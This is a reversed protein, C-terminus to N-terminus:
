FKPALHKWFLCDISYSKSISIGQCSFSSTQVQTKFFPPLLFSMQSQLTAKVVSFTLFNYNASYFRHNQFEAEMMKKWSKIKYSFFSNKKAINHNNVKNQCTRAIFLLFCDSNGLKAKSFQNYFFSNYWKNNMKFSLLYKISYSTTWGDLVSKFSTLSKTSGFSRLFQSQWEEEETVSTKSVSFWQKAKSLKIIWGCNYLM